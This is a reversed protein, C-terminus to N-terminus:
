ARLDHIVRVPDIKVFSVKNSLMKYLIGICLILSFRYVTKSSISPWMCTSLRISPRSRCILIEKKIDDFRRITRFDLLQILNMPYPVIQYNRQLIRGLKSMRMYCSFFVAELLSLMESYIVYDTTSLRCSIAWEKWFVLKKLFTVNPKNSPPGKYTCYLVNPKRLLCSIGNCDWRCKIEQLPNQEMFLIATRFM